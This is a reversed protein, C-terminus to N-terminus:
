TRRRSRERYDQAGGTEPEVELVLGEVAVVRIAEGAKVPTARNVRAKWLADRVRVVGDPAVDVEAVGMEGIMGERGITPTSFRTRLMAPLGGIWFALTGLVVVAIVWWALQLPADYLFWSGAILLATGAFTWFGVGGAQLDVTLGFLGVAILALAFENVPVHSFGYCSGVLAIVGVLTAAGISAAYLEFVILGIGAILLFYAVWPAILTHQLQGTIGLKHFRVDQNVSPQQSSPDIIKTSLTVPEGAGTEVTKGDLNTLLNRLDSETSDAVGREIATAAGIPDGPGCAVAEVDPGFDIAFVECGGIKANSAMSLYSGSTALHTATRSTSAGSPGVWMIVPVSASMVRSRLAAASVAFAGPSDLQVVVMSSGRAEASEITDILLAANPPDIWGNIQVVDIGGLEGTEAHVGVSATLMSAGAIIAVSLSRRLV